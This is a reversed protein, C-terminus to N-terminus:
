MPPESKTPDNAVIFDMMKRARVHVIAIAADLFPPKAGAAPDHSALASLQKVVAANAVGALDLWNLLPTLVESNM